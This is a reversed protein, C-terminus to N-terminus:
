SLGMIVFIELPKMGFGEYFRRAKESFFDTNLQFMRVHSFRDSASRLLFKGIGKGQFERKVILDQVLVIHEGDEVCRVFGILENEHFAGFCFLSSLFARKLAEDDKLYTIWGESEYIEKVKELEEISFDKYEIM